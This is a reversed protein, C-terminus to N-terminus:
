RKRRVTLTVEWDGRRQRHSNEPVLFSQWGPRAQSSRGRGRRAMTVATSDRKAEGGDADSHAAAGHPEAGARTGVGGVRVPQAAVASSARLM